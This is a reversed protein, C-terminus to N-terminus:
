DGKARPQSELPVVQRIGFTDRNSFDGQFHNLMIQGSHGAFRDLHEPSILHVSLVVLARCMVAVMGEM